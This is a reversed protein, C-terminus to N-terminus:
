SSLRRPRGKGRALSCSNLTSHAAVAIIAWKVRQEFGDALPRGLLANMGGRGCVIGRGHKMRKCGHGRGTRRFAKSLQGGLPWERRKFSCANPQQAGAAGKPMHTFGKICESACRGASPMM